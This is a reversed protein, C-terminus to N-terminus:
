PCLMLTFFSNCKSYKITGNKFLVESFVKLDIIYEVAQRLNNFSNRDQM